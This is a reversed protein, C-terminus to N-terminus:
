WTFFGYDAADSGVSSRVARLQTPGYATSRVSRAVPSDTFPLSDENCPIATRRGGTVRPWCIVIALGAPSAGTALRMCARIATRAIRAIV